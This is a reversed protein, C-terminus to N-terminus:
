AAGRWARLSRYVLVVLGDRREATGFERWLDASILTTVTRRATRDGALAKDALLASYKERNEHITGKLRKYLSKGLKEFTNIVSGVILVAGTASRRFRMNQKQIAWEVAERVEPDEPPRDKLLEELDIVIRNTRDLDRASILADIVSLAAGIPLLIPNLATMAVGYPALASVAQSVYQFVAAATRANSVATHVVNIGDRSTVHTRIAQRVSPM